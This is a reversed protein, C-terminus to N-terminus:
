LLMPLTNFKPHVLKFSALEEKVGCKQVFTNDEAASMLVVSLWIEALPFILFQEGNTTIM